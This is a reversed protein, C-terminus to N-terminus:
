TPISSAARWIEIVPKVRRDTARCSRPRRRYSARRRAPSACPSHRAVTPARPLRGERGARDRLLFPATAPVALELRAVVRVEAQAPPACLLMPLVLLILLRVSPHYM